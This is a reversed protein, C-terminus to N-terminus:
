PYPTKPVQFDPNLLKLEERCKKNVDKFVKDLMSECIDMVDNYDSFAMEFDIMILESLHRTTSSEEARFVPAIEYVKEFTSTLQEKYLQPSQALFAEKEFYAVPFLETGGETSSAIIKPSNIEMFDKEIFFERVSQIVSNRIKFIANSKPRRLDLIRNDLRTDLDANIRGTIELPLPTVAKNLITIGTPIVEAGAPAKPMEKVYGKVTIVDEKSLSDFIKVIEEATKPPLTIQVKGKYDRLILFKIKGLDRKTEVWGSLIVEEGDLKPNIDVSLHTRKM